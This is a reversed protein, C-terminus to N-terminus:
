QITIDKANLPYMARYMSTVEPSRDYQHLVAPQSHPITDVTGNRRVMFPKAFYVTMIPSDWNQQVQYTFNVPVGSWLLYNLAAQDNCSFGTTLGTELAAIISQSAALVQAAPGLIGGTCAVFCHSCQALKDLVDIGFCEAIWKRNFQEPDTSNPAFKIPMHQSGEMSFLVRNHQLAEKTRPHDWPDAQFIVDRADTLMIADDPDMSGSSLASKIYNAWNAFRQPGLVFKGPTLLIEKYSGEDDAPSPETTTSLNGVFAVVSSRPSYRRVSRRFALVQWSNEM